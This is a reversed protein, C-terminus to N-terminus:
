MKKSLIIGPKSYQLKRFSSREFVTEQVSKLKNKNKVLKRPFHPLRLWATKETQM